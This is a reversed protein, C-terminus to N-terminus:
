NRWPAFFRGQAPQLGLAQLLHEDVNVSRVRRAGDNATLNVEGAGPAWAGIAAFSRTVERFELYEPASVPVQPQGWSPFQTTVYMLQGSKPYPLPRLIVGNLVSFIAANAGIGLALTIVATAAFLPARRLQRLGYRVDGGADYIWLLGRAERGGEKWRLPDGFESRAQRVAQDRPVGEAALADARAEVHFRWEDEMDREITRGRVLAAMFSRLRALLTM